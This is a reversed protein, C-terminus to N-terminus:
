FWRKRALRRVLNGFEDKNALRFQERYDQRFVAHKRIEGMLEAPDANVQQIFYFRRSKFVKGVMAPDVSRLEEQLRQMFPLQEATAKVGGVGLEVWVKFEKQIQDHLVLAESARDAEAIQADIREQEQQAELLRAQTPDVKALTEQREQLKRKREAIERQLNIVNSAEPPKNGEGEM